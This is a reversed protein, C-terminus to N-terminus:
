QGNRTKMWGRFLLAALVIPLIGLSLRLAAAGAAIMLCVSVTGEIKREAKEPLEPKALGLGCRLARGGDLPYVPLLNFAGQVLGCLALRPFLHSFFLLLFSGMPGALACLLERGEGPLAAEIVAGGIGARIGLVRGGLVRIALLHCGEHFLAAAFAAALWPLPLLLILLALWIYAWPDVHIM